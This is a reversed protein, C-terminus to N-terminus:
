RPGRSPDAREIIMRTEGCVLCASEANEHALPDDARDLGCSFCIAQLV